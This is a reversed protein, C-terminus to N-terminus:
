SRSSEDTKDRNLSRRGCVQPELKVPHREFVAQLADVDIPSDLSGGSSLSKNAGAEGSPAKRKVASTSQHRNSRLPEEKSKELALRASRRSTPTDLSHEISTRDEAEEFEGAGSIPDSADNPTDFGPEQDLSQDMASDNPLHSATPTPAQRPSSDGPAKDDPLHSATPTPAQRPSSDGPANDDPLDSATPTPAQRPSSDGPASNEPVMTQPIATPPHSHYDNPTDFGPEHDLSQDMASDDPLHSATPTPAQGPSSDGPASNEPEMTQPIATLPQSQHNLSKDMTTNDPHSSGTLLLAQLSNQAPATSVVTAQDMANDDPLHSGTLIPAQIINQEPAASLATARITFWESDQQSASLSPPQLTEWPIQLLLGGLIDEPATSGESLTFLARWIIKEVELLQQPKKNGLAISM